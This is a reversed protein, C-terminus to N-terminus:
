RTPRGKLPHRWQAPFTAGNPIAAVTALLLGLVIHNLSSPPSPYPALFGILALWAGIGAVVFRLRCRQTTLSSLALAVVATGGVVDNFWLARNEIGHQLVVPSMALWLGLMVEIVRPWV